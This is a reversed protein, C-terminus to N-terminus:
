SIVADSNASIWNLFSTVRTYSSPDGAECGNNSISSTIGVLKGNVVLPGGSDGFCIGKNGAGGTCIMTDVFDSLTEACVKNTLVPVDIYRLVDSMDHSSTAIYGWGSAKAKSGAFSNSVDAKSPLSILQVYKNLNAPTPLYVVGVDNELTGDNYKENIKFTSTSIRQQTPERRQINHAGLIVELSVLGDVLCHGATLVYRRTILSGGCFSTDNGKYFLTLAVQYPLSNPVAENGGAIRIDESSAHQHLRTRAIKSAPIIKAWDRGVHATVLSCTIFILVTEKM